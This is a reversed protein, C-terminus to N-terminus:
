FSISRIDSFVNNGDDPLSTYSAGKAFSFYARMFLSDLRDPSRSLLAKVQDKPIISLKGDKDPDKQKIVDMEELISERAKDDEENIFVKRENVMEAFKFLCQAKLNQYNEGNLPSAGNVFAKAGELYSTLFSGVGDADFVIHSRPIRYKEAKGKIFNEIEKGTSKAFEWVKERRWGNWYSVVFLDSGQMAIDATLYKEGEEVFDNTFADCAADYDFIKTLDDDYEFNGYLLREIQVKNKTRLVSAKYTKQDIWPNDSFLATVFKRTGDLEKEEKVLPKWFDTFIWGKSPNCTYLAKPYTRWEKGSLTTFRFQLVDRAAKSVEQAEDIWAGTLDYSGFRDFHPDSPTTKMEAFFVKSGNYFTMVLDQFNMNYDAGRELGLKKLETFIAAMTTNKLHKLSHRAVLWNSEPFKLCSTIIWTAGLVTKGGRAGGGYCVERVIDNQLLHYAEAQKKSLQIKRENM